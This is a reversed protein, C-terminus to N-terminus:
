ATETKVVLEPFLSCLTENPVRSGQQKDLCALLIDLSGKCDRNALTATLDRTAIGHILHFERM